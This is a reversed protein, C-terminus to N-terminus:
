AVLFHVLLEELQWKQPKIQHVIKNSSYEKYDEQKVRENTIQICILVVLRVLQMYRFNILTM